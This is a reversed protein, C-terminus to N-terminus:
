ISSSANAFTSKKSFTSTDFVISPIPLLANTLQVLKFSIVNCSPSFSIDDSANKLVPRVETFIGFVTSFIPVFANLSHLFKVSTVSLSPNFSIPISANEPVGSLDIVIGPVTFFM